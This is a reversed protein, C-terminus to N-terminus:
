QSCSIDQWSVTTYSRFAANSPTAIQHEPYRTHLLKGFALVSGKAYVEDTEGFCTTRNVLGKQMLRNGGKAHRRSLKHGHLCSHRQVVALVRADEVQLLVRAVAMPPFAGSNPPIGCSVRSSCLPVCTFGQLGAPVRPTKGSMGLAGVLDWAHTGNSAGGLAGM